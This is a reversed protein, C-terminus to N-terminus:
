AGRFPLRNIDNRISRAAVDVVRRRTEDMSRRLFPHPRAGPHQASAFIGSGITLAQKSGRRKPRIAHPSTGYELWPAYFAEKSGVRIRVSSKLKKHDLSRALAGSDGRPMLMRVRSATIKSGEYLGDVVIRKRTERALMTLNRELDDAGELDFKNKKRLKFRSYRVAM